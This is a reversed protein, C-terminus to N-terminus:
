YFYFNSYILLFSFHCFCLGISRSAKLCQLILEVLEYGYSDLLVFLLSGGSAGESVKGLVALVIRCLLLLALDV